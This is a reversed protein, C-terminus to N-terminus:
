EHLPIAKRTETPSGSLDSVQNLRVNENNFKPLLSLQKLTKEFHALHLSPLFNGPGTDAM